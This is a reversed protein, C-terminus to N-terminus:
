YAGNAYTLVGGPQFRCVLESQDEVIARYKAESARLAATMEGALRLAANRAGKVAWMLAMLVLSLTSGAALVARSKWHGIGTQFGPLAALRLTWARGYLHIEQTRGFSTSTSFDGSEFMLPADATTADRLELAFDRQYGGLIAQMLTQLQFSAYVFGSPAAGRS